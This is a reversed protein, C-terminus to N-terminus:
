SKVVVSTISEKSQKIAVALKRALILEDALSSIAECSEVGNLLADVEEKRLDEKGQGIRKHKLLRLADKSILEGLEKRSIGDWAQYSRAMEHIDYAVGDPIRDAALLNAWKRLRLDLNIKGKADWQERIRIPDGSSRTHLHVALGNRDDTSGIGNDFIKGDKAAKEAERGYRLIDELPEMSHVIAIGVSLTPAKGDRDDYRELMKGFADHLDRAALLCTDLPLFALVDDGGSYVMCGHHIEKVITKAREAFESLKASFDIHKYIDLDKMLSIIRGMRDGDASLIAFYRDPEGLGFNADEGDNKSNKQLRDVLSKIERLDKRDREELRDEWGGKSCKREKPLTLMAAIRSPYLVQGDFPFDSYYDGCGSSIHPNKRCIDGIQRLLDKSEDGTKMLGRIWPDLSVRTVSPFSMQTGGGLRKTLGIACLQEGSSPRMKFALELPLDISKDLVSERAGDLSSKPVGAIGKAQKFNRISKRGALLRMLKKRDSPYCDEHFLVWASNLELVDDVQDDWISGKRIISEAMNRTREAYKEWEAKAAAQARKNLDSPKKNEPLKALIINAVNFDNEPNLRFDEKKLGPFILTGGSGVIERAAAKSIESLLHSGFWLDRTRRAAAIFDQVPGISLVYLYSAM